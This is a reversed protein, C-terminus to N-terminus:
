AIVYHTWENEIFVICIGHWVKINNIILNKRSKQKQTLTHNKSVPTLSNSLLFQHDTTISTKIKEGMHVSKKVWTFLDKLGPSSSEKGLHLTIIM